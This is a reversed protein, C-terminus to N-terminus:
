VRLLLLVHHRPDAHQDDVCDGAPEADTPAVALVHGADRRPPVRPSYSLGKGKVALIVTDLLEVYKSTTGTVSMSSRAARRAESSRGAFLGVWARSAATSTLQVICDASSSAWAEWACCSATHPSSSRSSGPLVKCRRENKPAVTICGCPPSTRSSPTGSSARARDLFRGSRWM